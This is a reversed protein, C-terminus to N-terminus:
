STCIATARVTVTQIPLLALNVIATARWSDADLPASSQLAFTTAAAGSQDTTAAGGGGLLVTGAPCDATATIVTGVAAGLASTATATVLQPM